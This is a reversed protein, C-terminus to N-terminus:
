PDGLSTQLGRVLAQGGTAYLLKDVKWPKEVPWRGLSKWLSSELTQGYAVKWPKDVTWRGLSTWLSDLLVQIHTVLAQGYVM